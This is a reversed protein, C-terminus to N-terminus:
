PQGSLMLALSFEIETQQEGLGTVVIVVEYFLRLFLVFFSCVRRVCEDSAQMRERGGKKQTAMMMERRSPRRQM